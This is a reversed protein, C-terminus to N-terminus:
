PESPTWLLESPTRRELFSPSSLTAAAGSSRGAGGHEAIAEDILAYYRAIAAAMAEPPDRRGSLGDLDTLVFTVTGTPVNFAVASGSVDGLLLPRSGGRSM